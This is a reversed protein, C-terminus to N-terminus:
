KAEKRRFCCQNILACHGFERLFQDLVSFFYKSIKFDRHLYRFHARQDLHRKQFAREGRKEPRFHQATILTGFWNELTLGTWYFNNDFIHVAYEMVEKDRTFSENSFVSTLCLGACSAKEHKCIMALSMFITLFTIAILPRTIEKMYDLTYCISPTWKSCLNKVNCTLLPYFTLFFM